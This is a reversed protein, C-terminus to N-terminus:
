YAARHDWYSAGLAATAYVATCDILQQPSLAVPSQDSHIAELASITETVTFSWAASCVGDDRVPGFVGAATWNVSSPLSRPPLATPTPQSAHFDRLSRRTGVDHFRSAWEEFTLDSFKNLGMAFTRDATHCLKAACEACCALTVYMTRQPICYDELQCHIGGTPAQLGGRHRVSPWAAHAM